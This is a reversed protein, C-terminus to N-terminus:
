GQGSLKKLIDNKPGDAIIKGSDLLVLRDVLSLLGTRHTIMIFTKDKIYHKLRAQVHSELMSDMGTTPEDFILIQPRRVIARALTIAQKQGGSLRCGQEGVDMDLGEGSQQIVQDLGSVAIAEEIASKDLDDRGLTINYLVSGRFFFSDQPAFAITRRLETYPISDYDYEDLKVDGTEPRILGAVVKALTTKGAATKGILGTHQGPEIVLNINNLAPRNQKPYQYSAQTISVRGKFPGKPSKKADKASEFPM